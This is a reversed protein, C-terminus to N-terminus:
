EDLVDALFEMIGGMVAKAITDIRVFKPIGIVAFGGARCTFWDQGHDIFV